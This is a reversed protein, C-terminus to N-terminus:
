IRHEVAQNATLEPCAQLLQEEVGGWDEPVQGLQQPAFGFHGLCWWNQNQDLHIGSSSDAKSERLLVLLCDIM